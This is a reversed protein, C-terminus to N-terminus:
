VITLNGISGAGIIWTLNATQCVMRISDGQQTSALSGGVGPTTTISGLTISQGAGQTVTFSASGILVIEITDGVASVAPLALSLAGGGSCFYGNNIVLTQNAVINSWTIGAGGGLTTIDITGPGNTVTISADSSTIFGAVINPFATSGILLQGDTTIQGTVPYGNSFDVNRAYVVENDFGPM